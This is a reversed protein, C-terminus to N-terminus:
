HNKIKPVASVIVSDDLNTLWLKVTKILRVIRIGFNQLMDRLDSTLIDAKTGSKIGPIELIIDRTTIRKSHIEKIVLEIKALDIKSRTLAM